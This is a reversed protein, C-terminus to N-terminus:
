EKPRMTDIKLRLRYGAIRDELLIKEPYELNGDRHYDYYGVQWDRGGGSTRITQLRARHGGFGFVVEAAGDSHRLVYGTPTAELTDGSQPRPALFMRRVSTAVAAGLQPYRALQPLLYHVKESRRSVELDFLKIGLPDVAVLRAAGDAGDLELLGRMLMQRGHFDFEVEQQLLWPGGTQRTWDGAALRAASYGRPVPTPSTPPFFPAACGGVLLAAMLLLWVRM